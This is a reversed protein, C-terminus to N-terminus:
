PLQQYCQYEFTTLLAPFFLLHNSIRTPFSASALTLSSIEAVVVLCISWWANEFCLRYCLTIFTQSHFSFNVANQKFKDGVSTWIYRNYSKIYSSLLFFFYFDTWNPTTQFRQSNFRCQHNIMGVYMELNARELCNLLDSQSFNGIRTNNPKVELCPM